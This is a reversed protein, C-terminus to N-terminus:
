SPGKGSHRESWGKALSSTHQEKRTAQGNPKLHKANRLQHQFALRIGGTDHSAYKEPSGRVKEMFTNLEFDFNIHPWKPRQQDTYLEDLASSLKEEITGRPTFTEPQLIEITESIEPSEIKNEPSENDSEYETNQDTNPQDKAKRKAQSKSGGKSGIEKRLASLEKDRRIRRSLVTIIGNDNKIIDCINNTEWELLILAFKEPSTRCIRAYVELTASFMGNNKWCKFIVRLWAGEAELSLCDTDQVWDGLYLPIYPQKEAM